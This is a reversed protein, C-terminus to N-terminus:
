RRESLSKHAICALWKSVPGRFASFSAFFQLPANDPPARLNAGAGTQRDAACALDDSADFQHPVGCSEKQIASLRHSPMPHVKLLFHFLNSKGEEHNTAKEM